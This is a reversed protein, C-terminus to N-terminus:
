GHRTLKTEGTSDHFLFKRWEPVESGLSRLVFRSTHITRPLPWYLLPMGAEEPTRDAKKHNCRRCATIQNDWSDAGGRSRPVIHDISVEQAGCRRGCYACRFGDRLHINRNSLVRLRIPIHKYTLLRIVSPAYIGPYVERGTALVVIAKGKTVLTLSKKMSIIRVPEFAANLQLVPRM